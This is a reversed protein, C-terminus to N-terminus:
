FAKIIETPKKRKYLVQYITDTLPLKVKYKKSIKQVAEAAYYGETVQKIVKQAQAVSKGKAIQQGLRRNRSYDSLCTAILDGIGSLGYFTEKKAGMKIGLESMEELAQTLLLARTNMSNSLEDTMGIGISYINKMVSGIEVGLVDTSTQIKLYDNEFINRLYGLVLENKSAVIVGTLQRQVLEAALSPGSLDAFIGHSKKGLEEKVIDSMFQGTKLDIGKACNVIIEYKLDDNPIMRLTSRLFQSPIALILINSFCAAEDINSTASIKNPLRVKPLYIKNEHSKNIFNVVKSNMDWLKVNYGNDSLVLALATGMNGAGIITIRKNM